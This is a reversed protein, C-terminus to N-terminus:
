SPEGEAPAERGPSLDVQLGELRRRLQIDDPNRQLHRLLDEQRPQGFALRYTAVSRLLSELQGRERSLPLAPVYREISALNGNPTAAHPDAQFVWYPVIDTSGAPRRQRALDFLATWVDDDLGSSHALCENGYANAVNKRVAHGKFRHVRGERQELDVPNHPLNWHVVAHCYLHFDLGEQGVSTTALVFPWFPSNFAQSVQGLRVVDGDAGQDNGFRVAFRGRMSHREVELRGNRKQPVDTRYSATRLTLASHATEGLDAVMKANERGVFGRWDRLCHLYEDLMAQLNADIGYRLAARWYPLDNSVRGRVLATENPGNFLARFGWAIRAAAARLTDPSSSGGAVRRLARIAAVAPSGVALESLVATLDAPAPGLDDEGCLWRHAEALHEGFGSHEKGEADDGGVWQFSANRGALLAEVGKADRERDLLLAAAWYWRLDPQGSRPRRSVLSAVLPELRAHAAALVAERSPLAGVGSPEGALSRPDFIEALTSSPYVFALSTMNAARTGDMRFDLLRGPRVGSETTYRIERGRKDDLALMRREAEYSLITAIVKPVIHWASFVLRKTFRRAAETGFEAGTDYYPLAPPLWLLRWSESRVIDSLLARLRANQPDIAAYRDIADWPLLGAGSEIARELSEVPLGQDVRREIEHKLAYAEMFNLLYPASKWYEVIDHQQMEEAVQSVALYARVDDARLTLDSMETQILMGNRDPTAALRETRTMVRRLRTGISQCVQRAASGDDADVELLATRMRQLDASLADTEGDNGFLFRATHVLDEHHDGGEGDDVQTYMRYPTASLLLTRTARGTKPDRFDFLQRALRNAWSDDSPDLLTKFRQFEDLIVMDPQLMTIAVTALAERLEGVFRNRRERVSRPWDRAYQYEDVLSHYERRLGRDGRAKRAHHQESLERRFAAVVRRPILEDYEARKSYLRQRAGNEEIGAYFLRAPGSGGTEDAGWARTLLTFLLAREEFKGAQRGLHLSTSPTIAILNVGSRRIAGQKVPLMTIRDAVDLDGADTVGLKQINQRAIAANSCIYVVDTRPDDESQLHRITQAIVGRAVLTKGLGVEDAVLFRHTPEPDLYLRRFAYEATTRQFDKLGGLAREVDSNPDPSASM